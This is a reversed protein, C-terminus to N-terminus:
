QLIEDALIAGPEALKISSIVKQRFNKNTNKRKPLATSNSIALLENMFTHTPRHLFIYIIWHFRKKPVGRNLPCRWEGSAFHPGPFVSVDDKYRNNRNLSRRLDRFRPKVRM